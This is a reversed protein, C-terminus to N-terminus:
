RALDTYIEVVKLALKKWDRETEVFQRANEGLEIRLNEDDLLNGLVDVLSDLDGKRFLLGNVGPDIFEAMAAVDSCLVAKGMAMAEFPKLPSVLECVELPLRPFPAIDIISYYNEILMHDVRGTFTVVRNLIGLSAALEQFTAREAGDGVLLLHFDSRHEALQACARILLDLGEYDLISGVYGIVTKGRLGLQEKLESNQSLPRFRSSDVGNPVVTIKDATVGRAILENKLAQTITIVRTAGKAAEAEMRAMYRFMGSGRWRPDRSGRTVEWLGRVEYISPIGLLNATAVTALGNWHNSAGHIIAPKEILAREVIRHSYAEIYSVLPNKKCELRVTSLHAYMVDGIVDISPISHLRENGPTDFPFGLRTVGQVAWGYTNLSTLLGHTRTAYGASAYPLSNHLMYFVTKNKPVYVAQGRPKPFPYGRSSLRSATWYDEPHQHSINLQETLMTSWQDRGVSSIYRETLRLAQGTKGRTVRDTIANRLLNGLYVETDVTRDLIDLAVTINGRALFGLAAGLAQKQPYNGTQQIEDPLDLRKDLGVRLCEQVAQDCSESLLIEIWPDIRSRVGLYAADLYCKSNEKILSVITEQLVLDRPFEKWLYGFFYIWRASFPQGHLSNLLSQRFRGRLCERRIKKRMIDTIHEQDTKPIGLAMFPNLDELTNYLLCLQEPATIEKVDHVGNTFRTAGTYDPPVVVEVRYVTVVSLWLIEIDSLRLGLIEATSRVIATAGAYAIDGVLDDLMDGFPIVQTQRLQRNANAQTTYVPRDLVHIPNTAQYGVTLVESSYYRWLTSLYHDSIRDTSLLFTSMEFKAQKLVDELPSFSHVECTSVAVGENLYQCVLQEASAQSEASLVILIVEFHSSLINQNRFSLKNNVEEASELIVFVTIGSQLPSYSTEHEISSYLPTM